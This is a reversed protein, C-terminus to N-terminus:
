FSYEKPDMFNVGKLFVSYVKKGKTHDRNYIPKIYGNQHAIFEYYKEKPIESPNVLNVKKYSLKNTIWFEIFQFIEDSHVLNIPHSGGKLNTRGSLRSIPHRGPGVLGGLRLFTTPCNSSLREIKVLNKANKTIPLLQSNEDVKGDQVGYVSISSCFLIQIKPNIELILKLCNLSKEAYDDIATPPVNFILHSVSMLQATYDNLKEPDKIDFQYGEFDSNKLSKNFYISYQGRKQLENAVIQALWGFGVWAIKNM